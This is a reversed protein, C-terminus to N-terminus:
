SRCRSGSQALADERRRHRDHRVPVDRLRRVPARRDPARGDLGAGIAAGVFGEESIPTDLVREAGFEDILGKTAGFAGGFVGIDEGLLFVREDDRM